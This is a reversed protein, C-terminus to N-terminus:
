GLPLKSCYKRIGIDVKIFLGSGSVLYFICVLFDYITYRCSILSLECASDFCCSQMLRSRGNKKGVAENGSIATLDNKRESRGSRGSTARRDSSTWSAARSVIRSYCGFTKYNEDAHLNSTRFAIETRRSSTARKPQIRTKWRLISSSVLPMRNSICQSEDLLNSSYVSSTPVNISFKFSCLHVFHLYM